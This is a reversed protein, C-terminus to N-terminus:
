FYNLKFIHTSVDEYDSGEEPKSIGFGVFNFDFKLLPDFIGSCDTIVHFLELNSLFWGLLGVRVLKSTLKLLLKGFALLNIVHVLIGDFIGEVVDLLGVAGGGWSHLLDRHVIGM